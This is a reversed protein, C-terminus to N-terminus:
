IQEFIDNVDKYEQNLSLRKGEVFNLSPYKNKLSSLSSDVSSSGSTVFVYIDKNTLDYNEIFTNIITPEKYWWVPFGLIITDYNDINIRGEKIEPRSLENKMEISSRSKENTWDLDEKTYPILPIIEYLDADLKKSIKEAVKKTIGSASFYCVLKKNM